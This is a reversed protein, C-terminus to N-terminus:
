HRGNSGGNAASNQALRSKRFGYLFYFILGLTTWAVFLLKSENNLNVFLLLCGAISLAFLM